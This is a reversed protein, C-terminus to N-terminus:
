RKDDSYFLEFADIVHALFVPM